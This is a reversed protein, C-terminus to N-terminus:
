SALTDENIGRSFRRVWDSSDPAGGSSKDQNLVMSMSVSDAMPSYGSAPM